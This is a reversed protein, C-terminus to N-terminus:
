RNILGERFASQESYGLLLAIESQTLRGELLYEKALQWERGAQQANSGVTFLNIVIEDVTSHAM